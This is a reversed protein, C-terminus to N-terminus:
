CQRLTTYCGSPSQDDIGFHLVELYARSSNQSQDGIGSYVKVTLQDFNLPGLLDTFAELYRNNVYGSDQIVRHLRGNQIFFFIYMNVVPVYDKKDSM